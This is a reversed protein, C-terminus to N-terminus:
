LGWDRMGQQIDAGASDDGNLFRDCVRVAENHGAEIARRRLDIALNRMKQTAQVEYENINM